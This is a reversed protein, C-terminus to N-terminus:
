KAKVINYTRAKTAQGGQRSEVRSGHQQTRHSLPAETEKMRKGVVTMADHKQPRASGANEFRNNTAM